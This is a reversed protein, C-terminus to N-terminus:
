EIAAMAEQVDEAHADTTQKMESMGPFDRDGTGSEREVGPSDGQVARIEAATPALSSWSRAVLILVVAMTVVLILIGISGMKRTM